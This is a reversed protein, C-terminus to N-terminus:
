VGIVPQATVWALKSSTIKRSGGRWHRFSLCAGDLGVGM